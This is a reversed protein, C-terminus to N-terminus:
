VLSEGHVILISTSEFTRGNKNIGHCIYLGGDKEEVGKLVYVNGIDM